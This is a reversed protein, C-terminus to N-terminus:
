RARSMTPCTSKGAAFNRDLDAVAVGALAEKHGDAKEAAGGSALKTENPLNRLTM